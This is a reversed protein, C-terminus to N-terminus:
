MDLLITATQLYYNQKFIYMNVKTSLYTICKGTQLLCLLYSNCITMDIYILCHNCFLFDKFSSTNLLFNTKFSLKVKYETCFIAEHTAFFDFKVCSKSLIRLYVYLLLLACVVCCTQTDIAVVSGFSREDVIEPVEWSYKIRSGM